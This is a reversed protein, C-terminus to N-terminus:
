DHQTRQGLANGPYATKQLGLITKRGHLGELGHTNADFTRGIALDRNMPDAQM